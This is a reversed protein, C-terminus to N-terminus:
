FGYINKKLVPKSPNTPDDTREFVITYNGVDDATVEWQMLSSRPDTIIDSFLSAGASDFREVVIFGGLAESWSWGYAMVFGGDPLAVIKPGTEDSDVSATNVQFPASAPHGEPTFIRGMVDIGPSPGQTDDEWVVLINGNALGITQPVTQLGAPAAFNPYFEAKWITPTTTM